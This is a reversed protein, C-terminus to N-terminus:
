KSDALLDFVVLRSNKLVLIFTDGPPILAEVEQIAMQLRETWNATTQPKVM